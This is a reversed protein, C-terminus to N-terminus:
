VIRAATLIIYKTACFKFKARFDIKIDRQYHFISM